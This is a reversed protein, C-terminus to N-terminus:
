TTVNLNTYLEPITTLTEQVTSIIREYRDMRFIAEACGQIYLVFM